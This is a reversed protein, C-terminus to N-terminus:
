PANDPHLEGDGALEVTFTVREGRAASFNLTTLHAAGTFTTTAGASKYMVVKINKSTGLAFFDDWKAVWADDLVGDGSVGWSMSVVDRQIWAPLDEDSCDPIVIENLNKTRNLARNSFACPATFVEPAAGDGLLVVFDSFRITKALAM